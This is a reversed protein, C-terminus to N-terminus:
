KDAAADSIRGIPGTDPSPVAMAAKFKQGWRETLGVRLGLQAGSIGPEDALIALAEARADVDAPVRGNARTTRKGNAPSRRPRNAAPTRPAPEGKPPATLEATMRLADDMRVGDDLMWTLTGPVRARWERGYRDTLAAIAQLRSLEMDVADSYGAIGWLKMRRWMRFTSRLALLWRALPIPDADGRHRRLLVTRVAESIVVILLPAFVRYFVSVADPWGAWANAAVSSLGLLRAFQRLFGIPRRLWTLFIDIVIVGILGGDLGIPAFQPLPVANAAALHSLSEYSGAIGYALLVLVVTVVITGAIWAQGHYETDAHKSMDRM